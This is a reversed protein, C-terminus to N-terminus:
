AQVGLARGASKGAGVGALAPHLPHAADAAVGRRVVDWADWAYPEPQRADVQHQALLAAALVPEDPRVDQHEPM